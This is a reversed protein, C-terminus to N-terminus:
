TQTRRRQYENQALFFRCQVQFKAIMKSLAEDRLEELRALVGARFFIKTEGCQYEDPKIGGDKEIKASMGKGAKKPEKELAADAALIAYSFYFPLTPKLM